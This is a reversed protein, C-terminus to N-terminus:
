QAAEMMPPPAPAVADPDVFRLEMVFSTTGGAPRVFDGRDISLFSTPGAPFNQSLGVFNTHNGSDGIRTLMDNGEVELVLQADPFRNLLRRIQRALGRPNGFNFRALDRDQGVFNRDRRITRFVNLTEAGADGTVRALSLRAEIFEGVFSQDFNGTFITGAVPVLGDDIAGLVVDRDFVEASIAENVGALTFGLFNLAGANTLVLENNVTFDIGDRFSPIPSSAGPNLELGRDRRTWGEEPFTTLGLLESIFATTSINGGAAPDGDLAELSARYVSGKFVP